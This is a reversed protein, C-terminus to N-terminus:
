TPATLRRMVALLAQAESLVGYGGLELIGLNWGALMPSASSASDLRRASHWSAPPLKLYHKAATKELLRRVKEGDWAIVVPARRLLAELEVHVDPWPPADMKRLRARTLGHMQSARALIPGQPLSVTDLLVRGTTDIVAVALAEPRSAAGTDYLEIVLVDHRNLLLRLQRAAVENDPRVVPRKVTGPASAHRRSSWAAWWWFLLVGGVILLLVLIPDM